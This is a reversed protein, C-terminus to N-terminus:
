SEKQFDPVPANERGYKRWHDEFEKMGSPQRALKSDRIKRYDGYSWGKWKLYKEFAVEKPKAKLGAVRWFPVQLNDFIKNPNKNKKFSVASSCKCTPKYFIAREGAIKGIYKKQKKGCIACFKNVAEDLNIDM